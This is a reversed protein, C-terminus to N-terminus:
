QVLKSVSTAVNTAKDYSVGTGSLNTVTNTYTDKLPSQLSFEAYGYQDVPVISVSQTKDPLVTTLTVSATPPYSGTDTAVRVETNIQYNSSNPVSSYWVGLKSVHIPTPAPPPPATMMNLAIQGVHNVPDALVYGNDFDRRWVSNAL